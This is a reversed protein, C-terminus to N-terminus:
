NKFLKETEKIFELNIKGSKIDKQLQTFVAGLLNEGPWDEEPTRKAADEDLGIGWVRDYPSTEVFYSTKIDLFRQLEAPNQIFRYLNGTYVIKQKYEDWVSQSYGVVGRGLAKQDKPKKSKIIKDASSNDRFLKAKCAMMFQEACNFRYGCFNFESPAWQGPWCRFFFYYDKM